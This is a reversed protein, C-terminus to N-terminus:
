TQADGSIFHREVQNLLADRKAETLWARRTRADVEIVTLPTGDFFRFPGQWLSQPASVWVPEGCSVQCGVLDGLFARSAARRAERISVYNRQELLLQHTQYDKLIIM